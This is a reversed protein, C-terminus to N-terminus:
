AEAEVAEEAAKAAEAEAEAEELKKAKLEKWFNYENWLSWPSKWGPLQWPRPEIKIHCEPVTYGITVYAPEFPDEPVEILGKHIMGRKIVKCMKDKYSAGLHPKLNGQVCVRDIIRCAEDLSDQIEALAEEKTAPDRKDTILDWGYRQVPRMARKYKNKMYLSYARNRLWRQHREKYEKKFYMHNCSKISKRVVLTRKANVVPGAAPASDGAFSASGAACPGQLAVVAHASRASRAERRPYCAVAAAVLAAVAGAPFGPRAEAAPAPEPRPPTGGRLGPMPAPPPGGAGALTPVFSRGLYCLSM